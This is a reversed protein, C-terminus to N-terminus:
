DLHVAGDYALEKIAQAARTAATGDTHAYVQAVAAERRAHQDPADALGRRVAGVLDGPEDVQVGSDALAWFRLGHEIYRRYWPANLWVVPIGVAMAEWGSSSNDVVYVGSRRFVEDIDAVPEIGARRYAHAARAFMRPHAHGIVEGFAAALAPLADVYHLWATGAEPTAGGPWHFSIAVATGQPQTGAYRDLRPCGVVAIQAHPYLERGYGAVRDSPCIFLRVNDRPAMRAGYTQGAGHEVLVVPRYPVALADRLSAVVVPGTGKALQRHTVWEADDLAAAIPELHARYHPESAYLAIAPRLM